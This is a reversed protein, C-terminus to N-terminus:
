DAPELLLDIGVEQGGDVYLSASRSRYGDAAVTLQLFGSGATVFEMNGRGALNSVGRDSIIELRSALPKGDRDHVRANVIIGLSDPCGDEDALQNYVEARLPCADRDDSIGDGDQDGAWLPTALIMMLIGVLGPTLIMEMKTM